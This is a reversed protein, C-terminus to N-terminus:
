MDEKNEIQVIHAIGPISQGQKVSMPSMLAGTAMYLMKKYKRGLLVASLMTASCGCGSGGAHVDQRQRDYIMLGCDDYMCSLSVGERSFLDTLIGHGEAGLDGSVIKDYDDPTTGTVDLYRKLTDYAAPAMAAGMNNVDTIGSDVIRGPMVATIQPGHGTRGLIFSAAGTVTWQATPPRQGGYDLPYRFQREAACFHSSAITAVCEARGSDLFVSALLLGEASTSCAGYIGVFPIGFACAGYSSGTCQNLLDGAILVDVDSERMNAKHLALSFARGQMEAEAQEWTEKGFKGSRDLMDFENGYPGEAEMKGGVAAHSLIVPPHQLMICNRM